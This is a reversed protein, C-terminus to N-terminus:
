IISGLITKRSASPSTATKGRIPGPTTKRSASPSTEPQERRAIGYEIHENLANCWSEIDSESEEIDFHLMRWAVSSPTFTMRPNSFSAASQLPKPRVIFKSDYHEDQCVECALEMFNVVMTVDSRSAPDEWQLDDGVKTDPAPFSFECNTQAEIAEVWQSRSFPSGQADFHYIRGSDEATFSGMRSFPSVPSECSGGKLQRLGFKSDSSDDLLVECGNGRLSIEGRKASPDTEYGVKWWQMEGEAVRVYRKDYSGLRLAKKYKDGSLKFLVGACEEGKKGYQVAHGQWISNRGEMSVDKHTAHTHGRGDQVANMASWYMCADQLIVYRWEYESMKIEPSKILAHAQFPPPVINVFRAKKVNHLGQLEEARQKEALLL